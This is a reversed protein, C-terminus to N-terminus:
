SGNNKRPRGRKAPAPAAAPVPTTRMQEIMVKQAESRVDAMEGNSNRDFGGMDGAERISGITMMPNSDAKIDFKLEESPYDDEVAEATTAARGGPSTKAKVSLYQHGNECMDYGNPRRERTIGPTGCAPCYGYPASEEVPVAVKVLSAAVKDFPEGCSSCFKPRAGAYVNKSGCSCYLTNM